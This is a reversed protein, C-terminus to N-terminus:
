QNKDFQTVRTLTKEYKTILIVYVDMGHAFNRCQSNANDNMLGHLLFNRTQDMIVREMNCITRAIYFLHFSAYWFFTHWMGLLCTLFSFICIWLLYAVHGLFAHWFFSAYGFITHWMSVLCTFFPIAWTWSFYLLLSSGHCPILWVMMENRVCACRSWM